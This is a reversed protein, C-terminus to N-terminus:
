SRSTSSATTPSANGTARRCAPRGDRRGRARERPGRTASLDAPSQPRAGGEDRRPEPPGVRADRNEHERRSVADAPAPRLAPEAGMGAEPPEPERRRAHSSRRVLGDVAERVARRGHRAGPTGACAVRAVRADEPRSDTESAPGRVRGLQGRVAPSAVRGPRPGRHAGRRKRARRGERAGARPLVCRRARPHLAAGRHRPGRARALALERLVVVADAHLPPQVRVLGLLGRRDPRDGVPLRRRIRRAHSRRAAELPRLPAQRRRPEARHAGHGRSPVRMGRAVLHVRLDQTAAGQLTLPRGAPRRRQHAPVGPRRSRRLRLLRRPAPRLRCWRGRRRGPLGRGDAGRRGPRGPALHHEAGRARPGRVALAARLRPDPLQAAPGRGRATRRLRVRRHGAPQPPVDNDSVRM